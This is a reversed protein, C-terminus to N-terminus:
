TGFEAVDGNPLIMRDRGLVRVIPCRYHLTRTRSISPVGEIVPPALQFEITRYERVRPRGLLELMGHQDTTLDSLDFGPAAEDEV